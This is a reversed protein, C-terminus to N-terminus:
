EGRVMSGEPVVDGVGLKRVKKFVGSDKTLPKM